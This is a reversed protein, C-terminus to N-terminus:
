VRRRLREMFGDALGLSELTEDVRGAKHADGALAIAEEVSRRDEDDAKIGSADCQNRLIKWEELVYELLENAEGSAKGEVDLDKTLRELLTAAHSWELSDASEEIELLRTDWDASDERESWRSILHVKQRLARRVDDMAEREANIERVIGDALGKAQAHNGQELEAEANDLREELLDKNIGDASKLQRAADKVSKEAVIMADGSAELQDPIVMAFEYAKQPKESNLKKKADALIEELAEEKHKSSSLLSSAERIAEEAKQWWEIIESARQKAQRFLAEGERLSGLEVERQGMDWAKRPRKAIPAIEEASEVAKLSDAKIEEVDGALSLSREIDEEAEDLLRMGWDPERHGEERATMILSAAQDVASGNSRLHLIREEMSNLRSNFEKRLGRQDDKGFWDTVILILGVVCFGIQIFSSNDEFKITTLLSAALVLGLLGMLARFKMVAIDGELIARSTLFLVASTSLLIVMGLMQSINGELQSLAVVALPLWAITSIIGIRSRSKKDMLGLDQVFVGWAIIILAYKLDSTISDGSMGSKLSPWALWVAAGLMAMASVGALKEVRDLRSKAEAKIAEDLNVFGDM